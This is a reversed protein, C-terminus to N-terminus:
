GGDRIWDAPDEGAKRVARSISLYDLIQM